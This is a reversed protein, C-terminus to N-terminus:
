RGGSITGRTEAPAPTVAPPTEVTRNPVQIPTPAVVPAPDAVTPTTPATQEVPKETTPKTTSVPTTRQAPTAANQNTVRSPVVSASTAANQNQNLNMNENGNSQETTATDPFIASEIFQLDASDAVKLRQMGDIVNQLMAAAKSDSTAIPKMLAKSAKISEIVLDSEDLLGKNAMDEVFFLERLLLLQLADQMDAAMYLEAKQMQVSQRLQVLEPTEPIKTFLAKGIIQLTKLYQAREADNHLLLGTQVLQEQLATSHLTWTQVDQAIMAQATYAALDEINKFIRTSEEETRDTKALLTQLDQIIASHTRAPQSLLALRKQQLKETEQEVTTEWEDMATQNAVLDLSSITPSTATTRATLQQGMLVTFPTGRRTVEVGHEVVGITLQANEVKHFIETGRIGAVTDGAKVTTTSGETVMGMVKTWINGSQINIETNTDGTSEDFLMADVTVEAPGEMKSFSGDPWYLIAKAGADASISDGVQLLAQAGVPTEESGRTLYVDGEEVIVRADEKMVAPTLLEVLQPSDKLKMTTYIFYGVLALLVAFLALSVIKKQM